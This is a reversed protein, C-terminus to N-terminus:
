AANPIERVFITSGAREVVTGVPVHTGIHLIMEVHEHVLEAMGLEVEQAPDLVGSADAQSWLLEDWGGRELYGTVADRVDDITLGAREAVMATTTAGASVLGLFGRTCGCAEGTSCETAVPTVLEGDLTHSYDGRTLGQLESTAILVKM